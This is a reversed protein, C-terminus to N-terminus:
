GKGKVINVRLLREIKVLCEEYEREPDSDFTIAAGVHLSLYKRAANYLMTRIVVNFDFNGDPTFYGLAGSYVGRKSQEYHEILEMAKIKPAGTMSGMPFSAKIADLGSYGPKLQGSVTSIMQFVGPFDYIGFLEEVEVSGPECTRSLDNRVLDVIMVNEAREKEDHWLKERLYLDERTDSGRRITGKIPQSILRNGTKKLYREMSACIIYKDNIRMFASFPQPSNSELGLFVDFPDIEIDSAYFEQCYSVEYVDGEIIHERLRNVTELYKAKKIRSQFSANISQRGADVIVQKEIEDILGAPKEVSTEVIITDNKILIVTEPIFFYLDPFDLSDPNESSLKELENKLDYGFYGFMWQNPNEKQFAEFSQFGKGTNVSLTKAAGIAVAFDFSHYYPHSSLDKGTYYENSDLICFVPIGQLYKLLKQRFDKIGTASLSRTFQNIKHEV